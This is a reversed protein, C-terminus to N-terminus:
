AGATAREGETYGRDRGQIDPRYALMELQTAPRSAACELHLATGVCRRVGQAVCSLSSCTEPSAHISRPRADSLHQEHVARM